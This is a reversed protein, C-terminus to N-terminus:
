LQRLDGFLVAVTDDDGDSFQGIRWAGVAALLQCSTGSPSNTHSRVSDYILDVIITKDGHNYGDPMAFVHIAWLRGGKQKAAREGSVARSAVVNTRVIVSVYM